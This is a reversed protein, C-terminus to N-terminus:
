GVRDGHIAIESAGRILDDLVAGVTALPIPGTFDAATSVDLDLSVFHRPPALAPVGANMEFLQLLTVAWKALRNVRLDPIGAASPRYRNVQYMFDSAEGQPVVGDIFYRLREYGSERTDTPEVLVLGLALRRTAPFRESRVWHSVAGLHQQAADPFDGFTAIIPVPANAPVFVCDVRGPQVTLNALSDLFPGAELRLGASRNYTSTEPEGGVIAGWIDTPVVVDPMLFSTFRVSQVLWPM